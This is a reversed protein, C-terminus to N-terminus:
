FTVSMVFISLMRWSIEKMGYNAKIMAGSLVPSDGPKTQKTQTSTKRGLWGMRWLSHVLIQSIRCVKLSSKVFNQSIKKFMVKSTGWYLRTKKKWTLLKHFGCYHTHNIDIEEYFGNYFPRFIRHSKFKKYSDGKLNALNQSIKDWLTLYPM